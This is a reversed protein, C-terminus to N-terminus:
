YGAQMFRLSQLITALQSSNIDTPHHMLKLWPESM